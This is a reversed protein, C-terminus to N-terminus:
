SYTFLFKLGIFSFSMHLFLFKVLFVINRLKNRTEKM